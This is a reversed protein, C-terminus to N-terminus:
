DYGVEEWYDDTEDPDFYEPDDVFPEDGWDDAWAFPPRGMNLSQAIMQAIELPQGGIICVVLGWENRISNDVVNYAGEVATSEIDFTM